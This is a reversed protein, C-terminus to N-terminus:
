PWTMERVEDLERFLWTNLVETGYTRNFREIYEVQNPKGPEIYDIFLGHDACWATLRAWFSRATTPACCM